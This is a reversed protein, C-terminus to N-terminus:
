GKEAGSTAFILEPHDSFPEEGLHMRTFGRLEQFGYAASLAVAADNVDPRDFIVEMGVAASMGWRLLADAAEPQLAVLPGLHAYRFGRRGVIYGDIVADTEHVAALEPWGCILERIMASRAVGYARRDLALMARLIGPEDTYPKIGDCPLPRGVGVVRHLSYEEQFGLRDYLPKGAPTADLKVTRVGKQRLYSIAQQMLARGIGRRQMEPKVSVM